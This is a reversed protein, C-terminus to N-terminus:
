APFCGLLWRWETFGWGMRFYSIYKRMFTDFDQTNHFELGVPMHCILSEKMMSSDAIFWADADYDDLLPLEIAKWRNRHFNANNTMEDVKGESKIVEWVAEANSTSHIITDFETDIREGIDDRFGRSQQRVAELNVANFPLTSYNDNGTTLLGSKSTHSNSCLAVGEESTMFTFAASDAYAFPQHAIKTIKRNAAKALGKARGDIVNYRDFDLLDRQITIGGAYAISEIKTHFGPSVTQYQVTGNFQEPDPVSGIAFYELWAKKEKVTTFFKDRIDPLGKYTDTFVKTLRDDLLRVFDKDTLPNGM